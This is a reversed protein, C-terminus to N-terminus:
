EGHPSEGGDEPSSETAQPGRTAIEQASSWGGGLARYLQVYSVLEDRVAEVLDLESTFHDRESDLVELYSTVGGLYRDQSLDVQSNLSAELLENRIRIEERKQRAILADAVERFASQLIQLYILTAERQQSETIEVNSRLRGANFIPLTISPAISWIRSGADILDGLEESALGGLATLRIAPYLLAKAEGIRANAAILGQEARRVDPRRGLLDSPLGVPVDFTRNQALLSEGRPIPGPNDGMLVRILNEQQEIFQEIRPLIVATQLVLSESQHFEVKNTVGQELRLRVLELSKERSEYTRRTIELQEDLLLLDFYAIALDNVLSQIIAHRAYESQLLEARAADTASKFRGWFDIEWTLDGFISWQEQEEDVGTPISTAGNNTTRLYEYNGGARIDPYLDARSITVASRAQLIREAAIRLDHNRTLATKILEQLVPDRFVELWELDGITLGNEAGELSGDAGRYTDPIPVLPAKYEPGVHCATLLLLVSFLLLTTKM